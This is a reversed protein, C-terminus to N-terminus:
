GAHAAGLSQRVYLRHALMAAGPGDDATADAGVRAVLDPRGKFARGGVLIIISRNLSARRVAEVVRAVDGLLSEQSMTVGAVAVWQSAATEANDEPTAGIEVQTDWGTSRMFSAIVDLGFLHRESPTAILLARRRSDATATPVRSYTELLLRLRNIGVSVDIFDCEDEYWLEGLRRAAPALLTEFLQDASLGRERMREFFREAADLDSGLLIRGFDDIELPSPAQAEAAGRWQQHILALRPVIRERVVSELRAGREPARWVSREEWAGTWGIGSLSCPDHDLTEEAIGKTRM